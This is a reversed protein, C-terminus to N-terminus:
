RGDHACQVDRRRRARRRARRPRRAGGDRRAGVLAGTARVGVAHLEREVRRRQAACAEEGSLEDTPALPVLRALAGRAAHARARAGRWCVGRAVAERSQRRVRRDARRRRWRRARRRAVDVARAARRRAREGPLAGAHHRPARPLRAGAAAAAGATRDDAVYHQHGGTAPHALFNVSVAPRAAAMAVNGPANVGKKYNTDLLIDAAPACGRRRTAAATSSSWRSARRPPASACRDAPGFAAAAALRSARRRPLQSADHHELVGLLLRLTVHERFDAGAYAICACGDAACAARRCRPRRRLRRARAGGHALLRRAHRPRRPGVDVALVIPAAVVRAGSLRVRRASAGVPQLARGSRPLRLERHARQVGRRDDRWDPQLAVIKSYDADVAHRALAAFEAAADSLAAVDATSAGHAMRRSALQHRVPVSAPWLALAASCRRSRRRQARCVRRAGRLVVCFESAARRRPASRARHRGLERRGRRPPRNRRADGM